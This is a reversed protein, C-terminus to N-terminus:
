HKHYSQHYPLRIRSIHDPSVGVERLALMHLTNEQEKESM